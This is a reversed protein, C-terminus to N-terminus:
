DLKGHNPTQTEANKTKHTNSPTHKVWYINFWSDGCTVHDVGQICPEITIADGENTTNMKINLIDSMRINVGPYKKTLYEILNDQFEKMEATKECFVKESITQKTVHPTGMATRWKFIGLFNCEKFNSEDTTVWTTVDKTKRNIKNIRTSFVPTNELKCIHVSNGSSATLTKKISMSIPAMPRMEGCGNLEYIGDQISTTIESTVM